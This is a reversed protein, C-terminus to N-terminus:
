VNISYNLEKYMVRFFVYPLLVSSVRVVDIPTSAVASGLSAIFSSSFFCIRFNILRESVALTSVHWKSIFIQAIVSVPACSSLLDKHKVLGQRTTFHQKVLPHIFFTYGLRSFTFRCLVITLFTKYVYSKQLLNRIKPKRVILSFEWLVEGQSEICSTAHRSQSQRVHQFMGFTMCVMQFRNQKWVFWRFDM